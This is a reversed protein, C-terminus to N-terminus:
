SGTRLHQAFAAPLRAAEIKAAAAAHDYPVRLFTLTRTDTDLLACAASPNGDRPQGCAGPIALWRRGAPLPIAFGPHPIFRAAHGAQTYYLAPAHEHGCFTIRADTAHLSRAAALRSNVYGWNQPAWANAHVYLRDVDRVSLPLGRLWARQDDDLRDRTWEIAVRAAQHMREGPGHVAAQDHNGLLVIAGRSQADRVADVVWAPDAGYGVLDGLVVLQDHGLADFRRLCAEVAERNAHLDALLAIRM